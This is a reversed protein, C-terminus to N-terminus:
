DYDEAPLALRMSWRAMGRGGVPSTRLSRMREVLDLRRLTRGRRLSGQEEEGLYDKSGVLDWCPARRDGLHDCSPMM